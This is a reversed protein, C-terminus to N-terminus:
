FSESWVGPAGQLLSSNVHAKWIGMSSFLSTCFSKHWGLVGCPFFRHTWLLKGLRDLTVKNQQWPSVTVWVHQFSVPVSRPINQTITAPLCTVTSVFAGGIAHKKKHPMKIHGKWPNAYFTFFLLLFFFSYSGRLLRKSHLCFMFPFPRLLKIGSQYPQTRAKASFAPSLFKIFIGFYCANKVILTFSPSIQKHLESWKQLPATMMDAQRWFAEKNM